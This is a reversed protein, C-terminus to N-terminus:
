VTNPDEANGWLRLDDREFRAPLTRGLRRSGETTAPGQGFGDIEGQLVPRVHEVKAERPWRIWEQRPENRRCHLMVNRNDSSDQFLSLTTWAEWGRQLCHDGDPATIWAPVHVTRHPAFGSCCQGRGPAIDQRGGWM